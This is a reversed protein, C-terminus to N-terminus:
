RKIGREYENYLEYEQDFQHIKLKDHVKDIQWQKINRTHFFPLWILNKCFHKIVTNEKIKYQENYKPDLIKKYTVVKQLASQDVMIFRKRNILDRCKSLTNMKKCMDLNILFVGSNCYEKNMWYKGVQDLVMGFEYGELDEYYLEKIDKLAMTDVDLYLVKDLEKLETEDILLRLLTYPTYGTKLNVSNSLERDFIEKVDIKKVSDNINYSKVLSNLDEIKKDDIALFSDNLEKYDMTLIYFCIDEKTHRLISLISLYIGKFVGNSGSYVVHMM